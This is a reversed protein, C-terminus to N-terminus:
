DDASLGCFGVSYESFPSNRREEIIFFQNLPFIDFKTTLVIIKVSKGNEKFKVM